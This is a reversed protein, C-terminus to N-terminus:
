RPTTTKVPASSIYIAAGGDPASEGIPLQADTIKRVWDVLVNAAQRDSQMGRLKGRPKLPTGASDIVVTALPKGGLVVDMGRAPPAAQDTWLLLPLAFAFLIRIPHNM